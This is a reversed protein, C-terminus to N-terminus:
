HSSYEKLPWKAPSVVTPKQVSVQEETGSARWASSFSCSGVILGVTLLVHAIMYMEAQEKQHRSFIYAFAKRYAKEYGNVSPMLAVSLCLRIRILIKEGYVARFGALLLGAMCYSMNVLGVLILGQWIKDFLRGHSFTKGVPVHM